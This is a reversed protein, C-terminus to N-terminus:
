RVGERGRDEERVRGKGLVRERVLQCIPRLTGTAVKIECLNALVSVPLHCGETLPSTRKKVEDQLGDVIPLFM